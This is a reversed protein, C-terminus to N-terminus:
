LLVNVIKKFWSLRSVQGDGCPTQPYCRRRCCNDSSSFGHLAAATPFESLAFFDRDLCPSGCITFGNSSDQCESHSLCPGWAQPCPRESTCRRECCDDQTDWLGGSQLPCNDEGCQLTGSCDEDGHCDGEGEGCLRTSEPGCCNEGGRCVLNLDTIISTDVMITEPNEGPSPDELFTVLGM